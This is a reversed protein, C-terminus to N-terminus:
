RPVILDSQKLTLDERTLQFSYRLNSTDVSIKFHGLPPRVAYFLADTIRAAANDTPYNRWFFARKQGLDDFYVLNCLEQLTQACLNCAFTQQDDESLHALIDRLDSNADTSFLVHRDAIHTLNIGIEGYHYDFANLPLPM